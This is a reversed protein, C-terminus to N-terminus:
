CLLQQTEMAVSIGEQSWMMPKWWGIFDQNLQHNSVYPNTSFNMSIDLNTLLPKRVRKRIPQCIAALCDSDLNWFARLLLHVKVMSNESHPPNWSDHFIYLFYNQQQIHELTQILTGM